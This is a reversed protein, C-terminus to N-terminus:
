QNKHNLKYKFVIAGLIGITLAGAGIGKIINKDKQTLGNEKFEEWKILIPVLINDVTYNKTKNKIEQIKNRIKLNNKYLIIGASTALIGTLCGKYFQSKIDFNASIINIPNNILLITALFTPKLKIM